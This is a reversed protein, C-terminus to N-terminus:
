SPKAIRNAFRRATAFADTVRDTLPDGLAVGMADLWRVIEVQSPLDRPHPPMDGDIDDRIARLHASVEGRTEELWGNKRQARTPPQALEAIAQALFAHVDSLSPNL